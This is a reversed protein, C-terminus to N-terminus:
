KDKKTSMLWNALKLAQYAELSPKDALRFLGTHEVGIEKALERYTLGRKERYAELVEGLKMTKGFICVQQVIDVIRNFSLPLNGGPPYRNRCGSVLQLGVV